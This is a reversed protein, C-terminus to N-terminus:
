VWEQNTAFFKIESDIHQAGAIRRQREIQVSGPKGSERVLSVIHIIYGVLELVQGIDRDLFIILFIIFLLTSFPHQLVKSEVQYRFVPVVPHGIHEVLDLM